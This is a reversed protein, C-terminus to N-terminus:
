DSRQVQSYSSESRRLYITLREPNPYMAAFDKQEWEVDAPSVVGSMSKSCQPNATPRANISKLMGAQGKATSHVWWGLM